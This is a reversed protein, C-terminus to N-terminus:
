TARARCARGWWAPIGPAISWTSLHPGAPLRWGPFGGRRERFAMQRAPDGAAHRRSQGAGDHRQRPSTEDDIPYALHNRDALSQIPSHDNPVFNGRVLGTIKKGHDTAIPMDMRMQGPPVDWQWGMWLLTWGQNMLAGDGIEEASTPDKSNVAKQFYRLM